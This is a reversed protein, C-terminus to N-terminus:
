KYAYTYNMSIGILGIVSIFIIKSTTTPIISLIIDSVGFAFIYILVESFLIQFHHM